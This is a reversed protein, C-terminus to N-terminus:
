RPCAATAVAAPRISEVFRTLAQDANHGRAFMMVALTDRGDCTAFFWVGMRMASDDRGVWRTEYMTGVSAKVTRRTATGLANSKRVAASFVMELKPLADPDFAVGLRRVILRSGSEPDEVAAGNDELARLPAHVDAALGLAALRSKMAEAGIPRAEDRAEHDRRRMARALAAVRPSPPRDPLEVVPAALAEDLSREPREFGRSLAVRAGVHLVSAGDLPCAAPCALHARVDAAFRNAAAEDALAVSWLVSPRPSADVICFTDGRWASAIAAAEDEPVRKAFLAATRLEGLHGVVECARGGCPTPVPVQVPREGRFYREPHLIASTSEPPARMMDNVADYGGLTYAEAVLAPGAAYFLALEARALPTALGLESQDTDFLAGLTAGSAAHLKAVSAVHEKPDKGQRLAEAVWTGLVADGEYLARRALYADGAGPRVTLAAMGFHDDQLAHVLEHVLVDREGVPTPADAAPTGRAPGHARPPRLFVAREEAVYIGILQEVQFRLEVSEDREWTPVVFGFGRFVMSQDVDSFEHGKDRQRERRLANRFGAPPVRRIAVPRRFALGRAKEVERAEDPLADPGPDTAPAVTPTAGRDRSPACASAAALISGFLALAGFTRPM